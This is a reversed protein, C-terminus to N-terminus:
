GRQRGRCCRGQAVRWGILVVRASDLTTASKEHGMCALCGARMGAYRGRIIYAVDPAANRSNSVTLRRVAHTSCITIITITIGPRCAVAAEVLRCCLIDHCCPPGVTFPLLDVEAVAAVGVELQQLVVAEQQRLVRMVLHHQWVTGPGALGVRCRAHALREQVRTRKEVDECATPRCCAHAARVTHTVATHCHAPPTGEHPSSSRSRSCKQVCPSRAVRARAHCPSRMLAAFSLFTYPRTPSAHMSTHVPAAM